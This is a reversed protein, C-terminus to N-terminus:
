KGANARAEQILVAGVDANNQKRDMQRAHTDTVRSGTAWETRLGECDRLLLDVSHKSSIYIAKNHTLYFGAVQPAEDAGLRKVLNSIQANVKANRVPQVRYRTQYANAYAAWTKTNPATADAAKASGPSITTPQPTNTLPQHNTTIPQRTSRSTSQDTSGTDILDTQAQNVRRNVSSKVGSARQKEIVAQAIAIEEDARPNHRLGDSAIPFYRDAVKRVSVQEITRMARAIRYLSEYDAPLPAETAYYADLLLTYAGHDIVSLDMTDKMYDGLNRRYYNM